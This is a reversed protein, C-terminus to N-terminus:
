VISYFFSPKQPVKGTGKLPSVGIVRVAPFSAVLVAQDFCGESHVPPHSLLSLLKDSTGRRSKVLWEQRSLKCSDM